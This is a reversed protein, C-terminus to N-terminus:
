GGLFVIFILLSDLLLSLLLPLTVDVLAHTTFVMSMSAFIVIVVM